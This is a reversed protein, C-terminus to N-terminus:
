ISKSREWGDGADTKHRVFRFNCMEGGQCLTQTRIFDTYPLAGYNIIDAHCCMAGLRLLGRRGLIKQYICENCEFRFENAADTTHHWTYRWGTGSKKSFGFPVVKKMLPLFFPLKALRQMGSPDLFDWMNESVERYAEEESLGHTQLTEYLAISTLIQAMHEYNAKDCYESEERLLVNMRAYTDAQVDAPLTPFWRQYRSRAVMARPEYKSM